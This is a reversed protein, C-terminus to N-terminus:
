HIGNGKTILGVMPIQLVLNLMDFVKGPTIVSQILSTNMNRHNLPQDDADFYRVTAEAASANYKVM